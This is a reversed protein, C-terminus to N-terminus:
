NALYLENIDNWDYSAKKDAWDVSISDGPEAFPLDYDFTELDWAEIKKERYYVFDNDRGFSGISRSISQDYLNEENVSYSVFTDPDATSSVVKGGDYVYYVIGGTLFYNSGIAQFDASDNTLLLPQDASCAPGKAELILRYVSSDDGFFLGYEQYIKFTSPDLAPFPEGGIYVMDSDVSFPSPCVYTTSFIIHEFGEVDESVLEGEFYVANMDKYYGDGLYEFTNIDIGKQIKGDVYVFDSTRSVGSGLYEFNDFNESRSSEFKRLITCKEYFCRLMYIHDSDHGYFYYSSEGSPEFAGEFFTFSGGRSGGVYGLNNYLQNADLPIKLNWSFPKGKHIFDVKFLEIRFTSPDADEIPKVKFDHAWVTYVSSENKAFHTGWIKGLYDLALFGDENPNQVMLTSSKQAVEIQDVLFSRWIMEAAEARTVNQDVMEFSPPLVLPSILFYGAAWHGYETELVSGDTSRVLMKVAEAANVKEDGYFKGDPHGQVVGEQKALCVMPAFWELGDMDDFCTLDDVQSLILELDAAIYGNGSITRALYVMKLFEARNVFRDPQFLGDSYGQIVGMETLTSISEQYESDDSVDAFDASVRPIFFFSLVFLPLLPVKKM